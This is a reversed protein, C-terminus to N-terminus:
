ETSYVVLWGGTPLFAGIMAGAAAGSPTARSRARANRDRYAGNLNPAFDTAAGMLLGTGAGIGFGLLTNRMRHGKVKTSVRSVHQRSFRVQGAPSNVVLSDDTVAQFQCRVSRPATTTVLIETGPAVAKLNDWSAKATQSRALAPQVAVILASLPVCILPACISAFAATVRLACLISRTYRKM